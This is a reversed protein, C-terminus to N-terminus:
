LSIYTILPLTGTAFTIVFLSGTNLKSYVQITGEHLKVLENVMALGIGSFILISFFTLIGTGEHSRGGSDPIRHFREFIRPLEAEPIGLLKAYCRMPMVQELIKLVSKCEM